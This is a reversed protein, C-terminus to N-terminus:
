LKKINVLILALNFYLFQLITAINIAITLLQDQMKLARLEDLRYQNEISQTIKGFGYCGFVANM